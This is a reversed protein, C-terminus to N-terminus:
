LAFDRDFDQWWCNRLVRAAKRPEPTLGPCESCEGMRVHCRDVRELTRAFHGENSQFEHWTRREFIANGFGRKRYLFHNRQKEPDRFPELCCMSLPNNM